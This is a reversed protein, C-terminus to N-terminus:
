IQAVLDDLAQKHAKADIERSLIKSAGFVVLESVQTRLTDKARNMEQDIEAQAATKVRAAEDIAKHKAEDVIQGSRTQAQAIIEAAAQKAERIVQTAREAAREMEEQGKESAALGDAIKKRRAELVENIPAWMHKNVLWILITFALVQAILTITISM